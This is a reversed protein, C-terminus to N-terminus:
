SSWCHSWFTANFSIKLNNGLKKKLRCLLRLEVFVADRMMKIWSQNDANSLIVELRNKDIYLWQQWSRLSARGSWWAWNQSANISYSSALEENIPLCYLWQFKIWFSCIRIILTFPPAHLCLLNIDFDFLRQLEIRIFFVCVNRTEFHCTKQAFESIDIGSYLCGSRFQLTAVHMFRPGIV